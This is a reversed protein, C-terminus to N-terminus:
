SLPIVTPQYAALQWGSARRVWVALARNDISKRRGDIAVDATMRARVLATDGIIAIAQDTVKIAHYFYTGNEVKRLYSLKDDSEANSHTYIAEDALLERLRMIDHRRMADYRDHELAAIETSM